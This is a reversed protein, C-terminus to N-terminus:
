IYQSQHLFARCHSPSVGQLDRGKPCRQVAAACLLAPSLYRNAVDPLCLFAREQEYKEKWKIESGDLKKYLSHVRLKPDWYTVFWDSFSIWNPGAGFFFHAQWKFWGPLFSLPINFEIHTGLLRVCLFSFGGATNSPLFNEKNAPRLIHCEYLLFLGTFGVYPFCTPFLPIFICANLLLVSITGLCKQWTGRTERKTETTEAQLHWGLKDDQLPQKLLRRQPGEGPSRGASSSWNRWTWFPSIKIERPAALM